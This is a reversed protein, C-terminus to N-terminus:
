HRGFEELTRRSGRQPHNSWQFGCQRPTTLGLQQKHLYMAGHVPPTRFLRERTAVMFPVCRCPRRSKRPSRAKKIIPYIEERKRAEDGYYFSRVTLNVVHNLRAGCLTEGERRKMRADPKREVAHPSVFRMVTVVPVVGEITFDLALFRVTQKSM